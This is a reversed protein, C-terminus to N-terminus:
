RRELKHRLPLKGVLVSSSELNAPHTRWTLEYRCHSAHKTAPACRPWAAEGGGVAGGQRDQDEIESSGCERISPDALRTAYVGVVVTTVDCEEVVPRLQM